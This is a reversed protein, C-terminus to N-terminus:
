RQPDDEVEIDELAEELVNDWFEEDPDIEDDINFEGVVECIEEYCELCVDLHPRNPDPYYPGASYPSQPTQLASNSVCNCVSCRVTDKM